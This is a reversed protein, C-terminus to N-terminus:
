VSGPLRFSVARIKRSSRKGSVRARGCPDEKFETEGFGERSRLDQKYAEIRDPTGALTGNIGEESIYVRGKLGLRRCLERHGDVWEQPNAIRSFNYYLIVCFPYSMFQNQQDNITFKSFNRL